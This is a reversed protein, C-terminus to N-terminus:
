HSCSGESRWPLGDFTYDDLLLGNGLGNVVFPDDVFQLGRLLCPEHILKFLPVRFLRSSNLLEATFHGVGLGQLAGHPFFGDFIRRGDLQKSLLAFLPVLDIVWTSRQRMM